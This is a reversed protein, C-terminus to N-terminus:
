PEFRKLRRVTKKQVRQDQEGLAVMGVKELYGGEGFAEDKVIEDMFERIGQVVGGKGYKGRMHARKFYYHLASSMAYSDNDINEHSPQVGKIPLTTLKDKNELYVTWGVVALTGRPTM